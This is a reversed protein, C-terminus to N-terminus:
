PVQLTKVWEQKGTCSPHGAEASLTCHQVAKANSLLPWPNECPSEFESDRTTKTRDMVIVVSAFGKSNWQSEHLDLGVSLNSGSAMFRRAGSAPARHNM